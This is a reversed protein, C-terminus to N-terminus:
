PNRYFGINAVQFDIWGTTHTMVLQKISALDFNDSVYAEDAQLLESFPVRILHWDLGVTITRSFPNGCRERKAPPNPDEGPNFCFSNTLGDSTSAVNCTRGAFLADKGGLLSTNPQDCRAPGCLPRVITHFFDDQAPPLDGQAPDWCVDGVSTSSCPTEPACGCLRYRKCYRGEREPFQLVGQDDYYSTNLDEASNRETVGVRMTAQGNPGRRVWIAVGQWERLDLAGGIDTGPFEPSPPINPMRDRGNYMAATVFSTGFGGGYETFPGGRFRVFKTQGCLNIEEWKPQWGPREPLLVVPTNDDYTYTALAFNCTGDTCAPSDPPVNASGWAWEYFFGAEEKSCNVPRSGPDPLCSGICAAVQDPKETPRPDTLNRAEEREEHNKNSSCGVLPVAAAGFALLSLPLLWATTKM